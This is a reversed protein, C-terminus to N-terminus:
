VVLNVWRAAFDYGIPHLNGAFDYGIPHLNGAFPALLMTAAGRYCGSAEQTLLFEDFAKLSFAFFNTSLM